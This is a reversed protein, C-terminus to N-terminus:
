SNWNIERGALQNLENKLEEIQGKLYSYTSEMKDVDVYVGHLEVGEFLESAPMLLQHFVKELRRDKKLEEELIEQLALTYYVDLACYKALKQLSVVKPDPPVPIDYDPANFYLSALYKLGHPSNEDLLYAALMTDFNLPFRTGFQSRLWKNDFKGNHACVIRRPSQTVVKHVVGFVKKAVEKSKFKSGPYDFPIVWSCQPTAIGLCHITADPALPNLGRTEVDFSIRDSSMIDDICQRLYEPSQVLKWKFDDPLTLKQKVLRSFRN